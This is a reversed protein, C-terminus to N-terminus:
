LLIAFAVDHRCGRQVLEIAQHLDVYRLRSLLGAQRRDYGADRLQEFRWDIVEDETAQHQELQAATMTM